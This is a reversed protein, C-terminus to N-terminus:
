SQSISLDAPADFRVGVLAQGGGGILTVVAPRYAGQQVDLLAVVSSRAALSAVGIEAGRLPVDPGAGPAGIFDLLRIPLQASVLSLIALLRANVRGSALAARASPSAQINKNGLLQRGAAALATQEATLQARFAAPGARAIARVDVRGAGAGFSAIVQPADAAALDSGFQGRVAATAVVIGSGPLGRVGRSLSRLRAAPFGDRRLQECMAPDCWVTVDGSVQQAVWAAAQTRGSGPASLSVSVAAPAPEPAAASRNRGAVGNGTEAMIPATAAVCVLAAAGGVALAWRRRRHPLVLRGLRGGIPWSRAPGAARAADPPHDAGGDAILGLPALKGAILYRVTDATLGQGSATGVRAGIQDASWGGDVGGEAIAAMILYPLLPLQVVQGDGRGVLFRRGAVGSGEHQGLLRLGDAPLFLDTAM